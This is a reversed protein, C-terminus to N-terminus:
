CNSCTAFVVIYPIFTLMCEVHTFSLNLTRIRKKCTLVVWQPYLFTSLLEVYSYTEQHNVIGLSPLICPTVLNLLQFGCNVCMHHLLYTDNM